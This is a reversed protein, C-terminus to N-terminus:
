RPQLIGTRVLCMRLTDITNGTLKAVVDDEDSDGDNDITENIRVTIKSFELERVM